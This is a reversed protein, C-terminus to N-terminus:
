GASEDNFDKIEQLMLDISKERTVDDCDDDEIISVLATLRNMFREGDFVASAVRSHADVMEKMADAIQKM